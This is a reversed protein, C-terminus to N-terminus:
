PHSENLFGFVERRGRALRITVAGTRDQRILRIGEAALAEQWDSPPMESEPFLAATAVVTRAGTARLFDMGGSPGSRPWGKVIVDARIENQLHDLLWRETFDGADSLFLVRSGDCDLRVVVAKDDANPRDIGPPPYLVTLTVNTGLRFIDGTRILCKPRGAAALATHLRGRNPSRDDIMSDIIRTGAIRPNDLGGCHGADGHTVLVADPLEKGSSRVFPIIVSDTFRSPGADILWLSDRSRIAAAGGSGCDFVTIGVGPPPPPGVFLHSAPLHAFFGVAALLAQVLGWNAQNFIAAIGANALGGLLALASVAMILFSLPVALMNCPLASFSVLHFYGLTLPLSGLWAALSVGALGAFKEGTWFWPRQWAPILQEPLFPDSALFRAICDQIPKALLLIAAVVGFSLQFGANVLQNPDLLLILFAAAFLNNLLVPPRNAVLGALVVAAMVASRVSAAGLGTLLVYFFVLPIIVAAAVRRPIAVVMALYWFIVTVIGVHLGSVSFLHFTGTGRFEDLMGPDLEGTDGLVMALILGSVVSDNIGVTLTRAMWDRSRLALARIPNGAGQRIISADQAHSVDLRSWVGQRRSWTAFDFEAPNRPGDLNRLSGSTRVVDGYAPAPGRWHVQIPIGRLTAPTAISLRFRARDPWSVAPDDAVSGTVEILRSGTDLSDALRAAPSERGQWLALTAFAAVVFAPFARPTGRLILLFTAAAAALWVSSSAPLIPAALIGAVACLTLPLFPIRPRRPNM